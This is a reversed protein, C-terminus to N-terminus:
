NAWAAAASIVILICRLRHNTAKKRRFTPKTKAPPNLLL